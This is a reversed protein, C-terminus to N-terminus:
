RAEDSDYREFGLRVQRKIPFIMPVIVNSLQGNRYRCLSRLIEQALTGFPWSLVQSSFTSADVKMEVLTASPMRM